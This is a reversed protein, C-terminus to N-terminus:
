GEVSPEAWTLVGHALADAMLGLMARDITDVRDCARHYCPDAPADPTGGHLEAQRASKTEGAGTFLGGAPVGAALFPQHDSASFLVTEPHVGEAELQGALVAQIEGSGAPWGSGLVGGGYVYPVPNPSGVMDLNVYRATGAREEEDLQAVYHASGHLGDEEGSWFAFRVRNEPRVGLAALQVAVELIAAVGSGNDNIGPGEPVGDLHAGVVTTRDPRGTTDAILNETTVTAETAEVTIALTTPSAAWAAGHDHTTALVPVSRTPEGLTGAFLGTREDDDRDGQNLIVVAGAGAAVAHDVKTGFHCTGRQVLAIGGRPFRAFDSAECGSTTAGPDVLNLDVPTVRATVSGTGSSDMARFDRGLLLSARAPAVIELSGRTPNRRQYTFRQRRTQYGAATLQAAVHDISAEHGPTGAARHGDHADAIAQLADLHAMLNETTVADRLAQSDIPPPTPRSTLIAGLPVAVVMLAVCLAAIITPRARTM